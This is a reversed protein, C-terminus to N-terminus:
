HQEQQSHWLGPQLGHLLGTSSRSFLHLNPIIMETPSDRPYISPAPSLNMQKNCLVPRAANFAPPNKKKGLHKLIATLADGGPFTLRPLSDGPGCLLPLPTTVRSLLGFRTRISCGWVQSPHVDTTASLTPSREAGCGM